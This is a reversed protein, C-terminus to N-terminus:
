NKQYIAITSVNKIIHYGPIDIKPETYVDLYYDASNNTLYQSFTTSNNYESPVGFIVEKKLAWTFAPDYNSYIRENEYNPDYEELWDSASQVSYGYGHIFSHGTHVATASTIFILGVIVYLGWTRLSEQKFKVKYKEIIVSFALLTFYTLAPIMTIFYRDVKLIIVSHFIFFAVFWSLFLFDIELNKVNIDKLLIYGTFLALLIVFETVIYSELFFSFVGVVSLIILIILCNYTKVKNSSFTGQIKGKLLIRYLYIGLGVVLIAITIYSLITPFGISPTLLQNYLGTFPGVSIYNLIHTLYYLRDPNYGVDQVPASSNSSTSIFLNILANLNGLNLYFYTLFPTVIMASPLLSIVLKKINSILNTNNILLYLLIPFVLMVATYRTLFALSLMPLVLYLYNNNNRIGNVLFYVAWISFCVGPVDIGGSVAWSYILPSSIFILCGISSQIENFRERLLLYLGIVGFVFIVGDIIFIINSSILGLRFFLSTLFPMLPPLYIVSLNGVPIGAYILANNLYVFVDYYPVGVYVQDILLYLTIIITVVKLKFLTNKYLSSFNFEDLIKM